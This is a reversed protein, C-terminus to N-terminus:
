NYSGTSLAGAVQLIMKYCVLLINVSMRGPQRQNTSHIASHKWVQMIGAGMPLQLVIQINM